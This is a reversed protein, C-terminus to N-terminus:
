QMKRKKSSSGLVHERQQLEDPSAGKSKPRKKISDQETIEPAGQEEQTDQTTTSHEVFNKIIAHRKYWMGYADLGLHQEMPGHYARVEIHLLTSSPRSYERLREYIRANIYNAANELNSLTDWIAQNVLSKDNISLLRYFLDRCMNCFTEVLESTESSFNLKTRNKYTLRKLQQLNVPGGLCRRVSSASSENMKEGILYRVRLNLQDADFETESYRVERQQMQVFFEHWRTLTRRTVNDLTSLMIVRSLQRNSILNCDNYPDNHIVLADGSGDTGLVERRWNFYDTAHIVGKTVITRTSWSWPTHCNRCWVQDCGEVRQCPSGCQTNPCSKTDKRKLNESEVENPDCIHSSKDEHSGILHGCKSCSFQDCIGCKWATSLFGRCDNDPCARIFTQSAPNEPLALQDDADALILRYRHFTEADVKFQDVTTIPNALPVLLDDVCLVSGVNHGTNGLDRSLLTKMQSLTRTYNTVQYLLDNAENVRSEMLNLLKGSQYIKNARKQDAALLSMQHSLFSESCIKKYDNNLFTKGLHQTLLYSDWKSKCCPCHFGLHSNVIIYKKLCQECVISDCNVSQCAIPKRLVATFTEFCVSCSKVTESSAM